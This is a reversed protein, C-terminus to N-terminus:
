SGNQCGLLQRCGRNPRCYLLGMMRNVLPGIIAGGGLGKRSLDIVDMGIGTVQLQPLVKEAGSLKVPLRTLHGWHPSGSSMGWAVAEDSGVPDRCAPAVFALRRRMLHSQPLAISNGLERAPLAIWHGLQPFVRGVLELFALVM